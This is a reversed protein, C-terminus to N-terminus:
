PLKNLFKDSSVLLRLKKEKLDFEGVFQRMGIYLKKEDRSLVSSTPYLGSWPASPLLKEIKHDKGVSVLEDSLTILMSQDKCVSVAYPAFPLKIVESAEWAANPKTRAIQIVSGTSSGLHSLGEIAYYGDAIRFFDV